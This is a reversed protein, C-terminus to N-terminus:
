VSRLMQNIDNVANDVSVKMEARAQPLSAEAGPYVYRSGRGGLNEIMRRGQNRIKHKRRGLQGAPKGKQPGTYDYERTEDKSNIYAGSRGAMDALAVPAARVVAQVLGVIPYKSRPARKRDRIVVSKIDRSQNMTLSWSLRGVKTVMNSLPAETPISTKIGKVVPRGIRRFDKRLEKVMKPDIQKMVDILRKYDTFSAVAKLAL